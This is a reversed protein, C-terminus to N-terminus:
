KNIWDENDFDSLQKELRSIKKELLRVSVPNTPYLRLYTRASELEEVLNKRVQARVDAKIRPLEDTVRQRPDDWFDTM